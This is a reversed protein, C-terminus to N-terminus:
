SFNVSKRMILADYKMNLADHFSLRGYVLSKIDEPGYLLIVRQTVHELVRTVAGKSFGSMSAVIGNVGIRNSLKGILGQIVKAQIPKKEWKCEVLYYERLQFIIVDMEENSTKVSQEQKWGNLEALKAVLKELARGRPNPPIVSIREFEEGIARRNLEDELFDVGRHTIKSGANGFPEALYFHHLVLLNATAQTENLETRRYLDSNFVTHLNGHKKYVEALAILMEIRAQQNAEILSQSVIGSDECFVAGRGTLEFFYGGMGIPKLLGEAEMRDLLNEFQTKDLGESELLFGVDGKNTTLFYTEYLSQLVRNRIQNENM